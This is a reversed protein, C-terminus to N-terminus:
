AVVSQQGYQIRAHILWDNAGVKTVGMITYKDEKEAGMQGDKLTCWRGTFTAKTMAAIFKAELDSPKPQDASPAASAPKSSTAPQTKKTEQAAANNVSVFALVSAAFPFIKKM